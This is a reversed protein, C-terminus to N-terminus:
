NTIHQVSRGDNLRTKCDNTNKAWVTQFLGYGEMQRTSMSLEVEMTSSSRSRTSVWVAKNETALTSHL